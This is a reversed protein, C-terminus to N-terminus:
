PDSIPIVTFGNLPVVVVRSIASVITVNTRNDTKDFVFSSQVADNVTGSHAVTTVRGKADYSYTVTESAGAPHALLVGLFSVFYALKSISRIHQM